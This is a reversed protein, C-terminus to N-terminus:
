SQLREEKMMRRDSVLQFTPEDPNAIDMKGMSLIENTEPVLSILHIDYTNAIYSDHEPEAPFPSPTGGNPNHLSRMLLLLPLVVRRFLFDGDQPLM